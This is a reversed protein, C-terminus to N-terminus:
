TKEGLFLRRFIARVSQTRVAHEAQLHESASSREDDAFGLLRALPRLREKERVPLVDAPLGIRLYGVNRLRQLFDYAESLSLFDDRDLM